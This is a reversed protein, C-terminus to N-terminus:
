APERVPSDRDAAVLWRRDTLYRHAAIAATAGDGAVSVAQASSDSRIEGAALLGPRTTRMWGDTPVRRHHDLTVLGELLGTRPAGGIYVFLGDVALDESAGDGTTVSIGALTQDGLIATVVTGTRVEIRPEERVRRLYDARGGLEPGRHLIVVRAVHDVLELSEQLASDGGGVVAVTKGAYLPGDCSACHSIGRGQLEDERDLGLTREDSGTAVIVASASSVGSSTDVDWRGDSERLGSAEAMAFEAGSSLAQDQIAPCLEFGAVGDPFGPYDEIRSVNLLQGGPLGSNLVLVSRGHRALFLGATSGALGGGVVIVEHDPADHDLVGVEV